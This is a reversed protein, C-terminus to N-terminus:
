ENLVVFNDELYVEDQEYIRRSVNFVKNEKHWAVEDILEDIGRYPYGSTTTFGQTAAKIWKDSVVYVIPNEVDTRCLYLFKFPEISYEGGFMENNYHQLAKMYIAAQIYYKYEFFSKMFRAAPPTGSKLDIGHIVKKEHDILVMDLYCKVNQGRYEYEVKLQYINELQNIFLHETKEHTLLSNRAEKAKLFDTIHVINKKNNEIHFMCYEYFEKTNFKKIFTEDKSVNTFLKLKKILPIVKKKEEDDEKLQVIMSKTPFKKVVENAIKELAPTIKIRSIAYRENFEEKDMFLYDDLLTGFRTGANDVLKPYILGKPGEDDFRKLLSYSINDSIFIGEYLM